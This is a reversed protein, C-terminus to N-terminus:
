LFLIVLCLTVTFAVIRMTQVSKKGESEEKQLNSNVNEIINQLKVQETQLNGVGFESCFEKIKRKEDNLLAMGDIVDPLALAFPTDSALGLQTLREYPSLDRPGRATGYLKMEEGIAGLYRCLADLQELRKNRFRRYEECLFYCLLLLGLLAIYKM